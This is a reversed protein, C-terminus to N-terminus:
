VNDPDLRVQDYLQSTQTEPVIDYEARLIQECLRYQRLAQAREGLRVYCRMLLRHADERCPDYELLQETYQLCTTYEDISFYYDALRALATLFQARLHEREVITNIETGVCLDGRYLHVARVFFSTAVFLNNTSIHQNGANVLTKFCAVDVNVGAEVNLRYTGDQCQVPSDGNLERVLSKRLSHVLSNLSQSALVSPQGPWLTELILERPVTRDHQLGLLRLLAEAKVSHLSLQRGDVLVRFSGLLCILVPCQLLNSTSLLKSALGTPPEAVPPLYSLQDYLVPLTTM